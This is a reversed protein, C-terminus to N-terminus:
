CGAQFLAQFCVFDLINLDGDDNCDAADEGQQFLNQFCVFDLINLDADANCDAACGGAHTGFGDALFPLTYTEVVEGGMSFEYVTDTETLTGQEFDAALGFFNGGAADYAFDYINILAGVGDPNDIVGGVQNFDADYHLFRSQGGDWVSVFLDDGDTAIGQGTGFGTAFNALEVGNEDYRHVTGDNRSMVIIEGNYVAIHKPYAYPTDFMDNVGNGDGVNFPAFYDNFHEALWGFDSGQAPNWDADNCQEAHFVATAGDADWTWITSANRETVLFTQASAAAACGVIAIIAIRM